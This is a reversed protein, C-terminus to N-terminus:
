IGSFCQSFIKTIVRTYDDVEITGIPRPDILEDLNIGNNQALEYDEERVVLDVRKGLLKIAAINKKRLASGLSTCNIDNVVNLNVNPNQVLAEVVWLLEPKDCAINIATDLNINQVNFDFNPNALIMNIMNKLSGCEQTNHNSLAMCYQYLLSQLLSEGYNDSTTCDFKPHSVMAEFLRFMKNTIVAFIPIRNNFVFNVDFDAGEKAILHIAEEEQREDILKHILITPQIQERNLYKDTTIGLKALYDTQTIDTNYADFIGSLSDIRYQDKRYSMLIVSNDENPQLNFDLMVYVKNDNNVVFSQPNMMTHKILLSVGKTTLANIILRGNDNYGLALDATNKSIFELASELNWKFTKFPELPMFVNKGVGFMSLAQQINVYKGKVKIGDGLMSSNGTSHANTIGNGKRVTFGIHALENDEPLNFNFLFYQHADKHDLVYNSFYKSDRTLCWGTRGNGCLIQSSKFSPVDLVVINNNDFVIKCDSANREMFSLMDERDWSYTANLAREIHTYLFSVDDIASSTSILKDKRHKSLKDMPKLIAAWRKFNTSSFTDLGNNVRGLVATRLMDRQRTNFKNIINNIERIANLGQMEKLLTNIEAETKYSVINGKILNKINDGNLDIWEKIMHLTELSCAKEFVVKVAWIHYNPADNFMTIISRFVLNKEADIQYKEILPNLQKKSYNIESM